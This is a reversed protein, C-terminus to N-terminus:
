VPANLYENDTKGPFPPPRPTLSVGLAFRKIFTPHSRLPSIIFAGCLSQKGATPKVVKAGRIEAKEAASIEYRGNGKKKRNGSGAPDGRSIRRFRSGGRLTARGPERLRRM